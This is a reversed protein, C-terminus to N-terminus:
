GRERKEAWKSYTLLLDSFRLLRFRLLPLVAASRWKWLFNHDAPGSAASSLETHFRPSVRRCHHVWDFRRCYRCISQLSSQLACSTELVRKGQSWDDFVWWCYSSQQSRATEVLPSSSESNRACLKQPLKSGATDYKLQAAPNFARLYGHIIGSV